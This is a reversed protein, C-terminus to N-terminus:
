GFAPSRKRAAAWANELEDGGLEMVDAM